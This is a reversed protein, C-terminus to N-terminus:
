HRGTDFCLMRLPGADHLSNWMSGSFRRELGLDKLLHIRYDDLTAVSSCRLEGRGLMPKLLNSADM